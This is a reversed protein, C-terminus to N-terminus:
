QSMAAATTANRHIMTAIASCSVGEQFIKGRKTNNPTPLFTVTTATVSEVPGVITTTNLAATVVALPANRYSLSLVSAIALRLQDTSRTTITIFDPNTELAKFEMWFQSFQCADLHEACKVITGIPEVTQDPIMNLLSSYDTTPYQLMGLLLVKASVDKDIVNPHFQYVKLLRRCAEFSYEQNSLIYAVLPAAIVETYDTSELLKSLEAPTPTSMTMMGTKTLTYAVLDDDTRLSPFGEYGSMFPLEELGMTTGGQSNEFKQVLIKDLFMLVFGNSCIRRNSEM